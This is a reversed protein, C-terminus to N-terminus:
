LKCVLCYCDTLLGAPEQVTFPHPEGRRGGAAAGSQGAPGPGVGSSPILFYPPLGRGGRVADGESPVGVKEKTFKELEEATELRGQERYM